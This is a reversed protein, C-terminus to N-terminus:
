FCNNVTDTAHTSHVLVYIEFCMYEQQMGGGPFKGYSGGPATHDETPSHLVSEAVVLWQAILLEAAVVAVAVVVAGAGVVAAAAAAVVAVAVFWPKVTTVAAIAVPIQTQQCVHTCMHILSGHACKGKHM